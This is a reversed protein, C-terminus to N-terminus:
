LMVTSCSTSAVLISYWSSSAATNAGRCVCLRDLDALGMRTALQDLVEGVTEVDDPACAALAGALANGKSPSAPTESKNQLTGRTCSATAGCVYCARCARSASSFLAAGGCAAAPQKRSIGQLLSSWRKRIASASRRRRSMPRPWQAQPQQTRGPPQPNRWPLARFHVIWFRVVGGALEFM